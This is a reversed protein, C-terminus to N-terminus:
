KRLRKTILDAAEEMTTIVIDPKKGWGRITVKEDTVFVSRGFLRLIFNIQKQTPPKLTQHYHRKIYAFDSFSEAYEDAIRIAGALSEFTNLLKGMGSASKMNYEHLEWRDLENKEVVLTKYEKTSILEYEDDGVRFWKLESLTSLETAKPAGLEIGKTRTVITDIEGLDTIESIDIGHEKKAKELPEYVQEFVKVRDETKVKENVGLLTLPNMLRVNGTTDVLDIVKAYPKESALIADRRSAADPMADVMAFQSPRLVRGLIQEYLIDSGIPRAFIIMRLEPFDVGTSLTSFNTLVELRGERFEKLWDVREKKDTKAEITESSVGQRKFMEAVDYAHAVSQCYVICQGRGEKEWSEFILKNRVETNIVEELEDPDYFDAKLKVKSIDIDTKVKVWEPTVLWGQQMGYIVDFNGYFDHFLKGLGSGGRRRPTASLGLLMKGETFNDKHVGMYHLVREWSPTLAKHCNGVVLINGEYRVIIMGSPVTVCFVNGKHETIEKTTKQPSVLNTKKDIYLRHVRKYSTKRNDDQFRKITKFGAIMAVTQYFDVSSEDVSSYYYRGNQYKHGDWLVMEEIIARATSPTIDKLDFHETITKSAGEPFTVMFRRRLKKKDGQDKVEKIEYHTTAILEFLRDIKRQKSFAFSVVTSEDKRQYHITGDAQAAIMLRQYPTLKNKSVRFSGAVIYKVGCHFRLDKAKIKHIRNQKVCVMDHNPTSKISIGRDTKYHIMDGNYPKVLFREPNVFEVVGDNYQGIEEKQTLSDFRKFGNSTLIEVDGPFCEDAIVLGYDDPNFKEIRKSGKKSLTQVSAIMIDETGDSTEASMELGVKLKPFQTKYTKYAQHALDIQDVLFLTKTGFREKWIRAIETSLFSKGGGTFLRVIGSAIRRDYAAFANEIIQQQYDRAKM